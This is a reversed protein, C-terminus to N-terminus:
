MGSLRGLLRRLPARVRRQPARVRGQPCACARPTRSSEGPMDTADPAAHRQADPPLTGRSLRSRVAGTTIGLIDTADRVSHRQADPPLLVYVMGGEKLAKRHHQVMGGPYANLHQTKSSRYLFIVSKMLYLMLYYTPPDIDSCVATLAANESSWRERLPFLLVSAFQLRGKRSAGKALTRPCPPFTKLKKVEVYPRPEHRVCSPLQCKAGPSTRWM